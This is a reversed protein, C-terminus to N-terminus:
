IKRGAHGNLVDRLTYKAFIEDYQSEIESEILECFYDQSFQGASLASDEARKKAGNKGELSEMVKFVSIEEPKKALVYGGRRGKAANLLGAKRLKFVINAAYSKSVNLSKSINFISKPKLECPRVVYDSAFMLMICMALNEDANTKM